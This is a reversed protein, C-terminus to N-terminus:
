IITAGSFTNFLILLLVGALLNCDLLNCGKEFVWSRKRDRKGKQLGEVGVGVGGGRVGLGGVVM